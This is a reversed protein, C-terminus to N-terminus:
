RQPGVEERCRYFFGGPAIGVRAKDSTKTPHSAYSQDRATTIKANEEGLAIDPQWGEFVLSPQAVDGGAVRVYALDVDAMSAVTEATAHHIRGGVDEQDRERMLDIMAPSAITLWMWHVVELGMGISREPCGVFKSTSVSDINIIRALRMVDDLMMNRLLWMANASEIDDKKIANLFHVGRSEDDLKAVAPSFGHIERKIQQKTTEEFKFYDGLGVDNALSDDNQSRPSLRPTRVRNNRHKKRRDPPTEGSGQMYIGAWGTVGQISTYRQAAQQAMYTRHRRASLTYLERAAPPPLTQIQTISPSGIGTSQKKRDEARRQHSRYGYETAGTSKEEMQNHRKLDKCTYGRAAQQAMYQKTGNPQGVLSVTTKATTARSKSRGARQNGSKTTSLPIYREVETGPQSPFQCPNRQLPHRAQDQYSDKDAHIGSARNSWEMRTQPSYPM